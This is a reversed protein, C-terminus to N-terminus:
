EKDDVYPITGIVPLGLLKEIDEQTKITNDMYELLFVIGVSVMIGIFFAIAINLQPKPSDPKTPLLAEDLLKVNDSGYVSASVEKLSKALQNAIKMAQEPDGSKVAINLFETNGQPSVTVMSLLASESMNLELKSIVDAAVKRSKAFVSYTKVMQQYMMVDNYNQKQTSSDKDNKGIIVSIDSKYVPKIVFYSLVGSTVTAILTILIILSIRKRLIFLYEHLEM